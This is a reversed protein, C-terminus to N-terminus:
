EHLQIRAIWYLKTVHTSGFPGGNDDSGVSGFRVAPQQRVRTIGPYHGDQPQVARYVGPTILARAEPRGAPAPTRARYAPGDRHANLRLACAEFVSRCDNRPIRLPPLPAFDCFGERPASHVTCQVGRFASLNFQQVQM